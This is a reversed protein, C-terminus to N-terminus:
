VDLWNGDRVAVIVGDIVCDGTPERLWVDDCVAVDDCATVRDAVAECAADRTGLLLRVDVTVCDGEQM